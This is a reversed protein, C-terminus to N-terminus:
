GVPVPTPVAPPPTAAIPAPGSPDIWGLFDPSSAVQGLAVVQGNLLAKVPSLAVVYHDRFMGIDGCALRNPDVPDTVPTGPPPLVIGNQRYAGDVTAGALYDRVAHASAATRAVATSGDPLTVDSSAPGPSALPAPPVPASGGAPPPDCPGGPQRQDGGAPDPKAPATDDKGDSGTDTRDHAPKDTTDDSGRDHRDGSQAGLQSSLGALPAAAGALGGLGGLADLPSAGGGTLGGLTGPLGSALSSWPDAGLPAGLPDAGVLDALSPDPMPTTVAPVPDPAAPVVAPAPAPVDGGGSPPDGGGDQGGDAAYLAALAQTATRQDDATLVGSALVDNIDGVQTRLFTLFSRQGAPTDPTMAPNNVAAGIRHQIDNLRQQGQTTTAHATLLVDSLQEEADSIRSYHDKLEDHLKHVADAAAGSQQEDTPGADPPAAPGRPTAPHSFQAETIPKGTRDFYLKKGDPGLTVYDGNPNKPTLIGTGPDTHFGNDSSPVGGLQPAIQQGRDNVPAYHEAGIKRYGSPTIPAGPRGDEVPSVTGDENQAWDHKTAADHYVVMGDDPLRTGDGFVLHRADAAHATDYHIDPDGYTQRAADLVRNWYPDGGSIYRSHDSPSAWGPESWGLVGTRPDWAEWHTVDGFHKPKSV